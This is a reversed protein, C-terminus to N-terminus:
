FNSRCEAAQRGPRRGRRGIGTPHMLETRRPGGDNPLHVGRAGYGYFRRQGLVKPDSADHEDREARDDKLADQVEHGEPEMRDLEPLQLDHHQAV